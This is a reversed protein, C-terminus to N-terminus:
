QIPVQYTLEVHLPIVPITWFFTAAWEKSMMQSRVIALPESLVGVRAQCLFPDVVVVVDARTYRRQM